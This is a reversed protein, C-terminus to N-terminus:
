DDGINALIDDGLKRIQTYDHSSCGHKAFSELRRRAGEAERPLTKGKAASVLLKGFEAMSQDDEKGTEIRDHLLDKIKQLDRELAKYDKKEEPSAKGDPKERKANKGVIDIVRDLGALCQQAEEAHRTFDRYEAEAARQVAPKIEDGGAIADLLPALGAACQKYAEGDTKLLKLLDKLERTLPRVQRDNLSPKDAKTLVDLGPALSFRTLRAMVSCAFKTDSFGSGRWAPLAAFDYAAKLVAKQLLSIERAIDRNLLDLEKKLAGADTNPDKELAEVVEGIKEVGAKVRQGIRAAMQRLVEDAEGGLKKQMVPTVQPGNGTLSAEVSPNQTAIVGGLDTGAYFDEGSISRRITQTAPKYGARQTPDSVSPPELKVSSRWQSKEKGTDVVLTVACDDPVAKFQASKVIVQLAFKLDPAKQHLLDLIEEVMAGRDAVEGSPKMQRDTVGLQFTRGDLARKLTNLHSAELKKGVAVLLDLKATGM